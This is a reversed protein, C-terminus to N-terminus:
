SLGDARRLRYEHEFPTGAAVSAKWAAVCGDADDPHLFATWAWGEGAPARWRTRSRRSSRTSPRSGSPSARRRSSGSAPPAGLVLAVLAPGLGGFRASAAIAVYFVAYPLRARRVPDVLLRVVFAVAVAGLALLCGARGRM